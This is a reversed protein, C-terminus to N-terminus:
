SALRKGVEQNKLFDFIEEISIFAQSHLNPRSDSSSLGLEKTVQVCYNIRRSEAATLANGLKQIRRPERFYSKGAALLFRRVHVARGINRDVEGLFLQTGRLLSTVDRFEPFEGKDFKSLMFTVDVKRHNRSIEESKRQILTRLHPRLTNRAGLHILNNRWQVLLHVLAARYDAELSFTEVAADV